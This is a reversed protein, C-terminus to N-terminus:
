KKKVWDCELTGVAGESLNGSSFRWPKNHLNISNGITHGALKSYSYGSGNKTVNFNTRANNATVRYTAWQNTGGSWTYTELESKNNQGNRWSIFNLVNKGGAHSNNGPRIEFMDIELSNPGNPELWFSAQSRKRKAAAGIIRCRAQIDNSSFGNSNIIGGGRVAVTNSDKLQGSKARLKGNVTSVKSSVFQVPFRTDSRKPRDSLDYNWGGQTPSGNFNWVTQAYSPVSLVLSVNVIFTALLGRNLYHKKM